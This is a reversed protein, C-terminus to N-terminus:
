RGLSLQYENHRCVSPHGPQTSRPPQNCLYNVRGFVTVSHFLVICYVTWKWLTIVNSNMCLVHSLFYFQVVILLPWWKISVQGLQLRSHCVRQCRQCAVAQVSFSVVWVWCHVSCAMESLQSTEQSCPNHVYAVSMSGSFGWYKQLLIVLCLVNRICNICSWLILILCIVVSWTTWLQWRSVSVHWTWWHLSVTVNLM